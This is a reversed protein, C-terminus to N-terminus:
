AKVIDGNRELTYRNATIYEVAEKITYFSEESEDVIYAQGEGARSVVYVLYKNSKPAEVGFAEEFTMVEGSAENTDALFEEADYEDYYSFDENGEACRRFFDYVADLLESTTLPKHIAIFETEGPVSVHWKGDESIQEIDYTIVYFDYDYVDDNGQEHDLSVPSVNKIVKREDGNVEDTPLSDVIDFERYFRTNNSENYSTYAKIKM